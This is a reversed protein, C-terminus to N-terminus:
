LDTRITRGKLQEATPNAPPAPGTTPVPKPASVPRPPVNAAHPHVVVRSDTSPGAEPAAAAVALPPDVPAATQSSPATPPASPPPDAAQVSPMTVAATAHAASQKRAVLVAGAAAIALTLTMATVLPGTRRPSAPVATSAAGPLSGGTNSLLTSPEGPSAPNSQAVAGPLPTQSGPTPFATEGLPGVAPGKSIIPTRSTLLPDPTGGELLGVSRSWEAIDNQFSAADQYRDEPQRAMAKRIIAAFYRDLDPAVVAPDPAEELVIKFMLENFTEAHFPVRGTACEFLVVGLSYLDSRHDTGKLGKAQEPSMYFPTGIVSGTRTMSGSHPASYNFKSVGFDVLKAFDRGTKKDRVLFINEPKLDRHVIGATHAAGLAELVHLFIPAVTQARMREEKLIRVALNEGDLYEMVMYRTGGPLEGLDYVEAIHDSGIRGAAQAEREFREIVDPRSSLEAHLIKIAVRHGIRVNQGEYVTGMGGEGLMRVIRYKSDILQGIAVEM